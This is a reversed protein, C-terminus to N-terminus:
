SRIMDSAKEAVAYAVASLHATPIIPFISTDVVRLNETGYVILDPGVVGGLDLPMMACTCSYHYETGVSDQLITNLDDASADQAISGYSPMLEQVPSTDLIRQNFQMAAIM